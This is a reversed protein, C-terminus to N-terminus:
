LRINLIVQPGFTDKETQQNHVRFYAVDLTVRELLPIAVGAIYLALTDSHARFDYIPEFEIYTKLKMDAITLPHSLNFAPRYRFGDSVDGVRYEVRSRHSLTWDGVNHKYTLSGRLRHDYHREEGEIRASYLFYASQWSLSDNIKGSVGITALEGKFNEVVTGGAMFLTHKDSIKKTASLMGIDLHDNSSAHGPVSSLVMGILAVVVRFLHTVSFYPWTTQACAIQVITTM